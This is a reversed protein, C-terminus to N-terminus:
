FVWVAIRGPDHKRRKSKFSCLSTLGKHFPAFVDVRAIFFRFWVIGLTFPFGQVLLVFLSGRSTSRSHGRRVSRYRLHCKHNHTDISEAM